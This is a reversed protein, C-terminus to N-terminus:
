GLSLGFRAALSLTVRDGLLTALTHLISNVGFAVEDAWGLVKLLSSDPDSYGHNGFYYNYEINEM